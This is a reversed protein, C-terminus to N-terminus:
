KIFMDIIQQANDKITQKIAEMTDENYRRSDSQGGFAVAKGDEIEIYRNCNRPSNGVSNISINIYIRHKTEKKWENVQFKVIDFNSETEVANMNEQILERLENINKM